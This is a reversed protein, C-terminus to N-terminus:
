ELGTKPLFTLLAEFAVLGMLLVTATQRLKGRTSSWGSALALVLSDDRQLATPTPM